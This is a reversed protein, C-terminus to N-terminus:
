NIGIDKEGFLMFAVPHEWLTPIAALNTLYTSKVSM